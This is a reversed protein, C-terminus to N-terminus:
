EAFISVRTQMPLTSAIGPSSFIWRIIHHSQWLHAADGADDVPMLRNELYVNVIGRIEPTEELVPILKALAAVKEWQPYVPNSVEKIFAHYKKLALDPTKGFRKLVQQIEQFDNRHKM